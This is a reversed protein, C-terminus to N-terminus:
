ISLSTAAIAEPNLTMTKGSRECGAQTRPFYCCGDRPHALTQVSCGDCSGTQAEGVGLALSERLVVRSPWEGSDPNM